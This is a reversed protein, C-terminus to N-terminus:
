KAENLDPLGKVSELGVRVIRKVLDLIYRQNKNWDYIEEFYTGKERQNQSEQRYINLLQALASM